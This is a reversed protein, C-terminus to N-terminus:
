SLIGTGGLFRRVARHVESKRRVKRSAFKLSRQSDREGETEELEEQTLADDDAESLIKRSRKIIPRGSIIPVTESVSSVPGKLRLVNRDNGDNDKGIRYPVIAEEIPNPRYRARDDVNEERGRDGNGDRHRKNNLNRSNEDPVILARACRLISRFDAAVKRKASHNNDDMLDNGIERREKEDDIKNNENEQRDINRSDYERSDNFGVSYHQRKRASSYEDRYNSSREERRNDSREERDLYKNANKNIMPSFSKFDKHVKHNTIEINNNLSSINRSKENNREGQSDYITNRDNCINSNINSLNCVSFIEKEKSQNKQNFYDITGREQKMDSRPDMISNCDSYLSSQSKHTLDHNRNEYHQSNIDSNNNGVSNYNPDHQVIDFDSQPRGPSTYSNFVRSFPSNNDVANGSFAGNRSSFNEQKNESFNELLHDRERSVRTDSPASIKRVPRKKEEILTYEDPLMFSVRNVNVSSKINKGTLNTAANSHNSDNADSHDNQSGVSEPEIEEIKNKDGRNPQFFSLSKIVVPNNPPLTSHLENNKPNEALTSSNCRVRPSCLAILRRMNVIAAIALNGKMEVSTTTLPSSSSVSDKHARQTSSIMSKHRLQHLQLLGRSTVFGVVVLRAYVSRCLAASILAAIFIKVPKRMKLSSRRYPYLNEGALIQSILIVITTICSQSLLLIVDRLTLWSSDYLFQAIILLINSAGIVIVIQTSEELFLAKM